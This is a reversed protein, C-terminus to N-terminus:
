RRHTGEESLELAAQDDDEEDRRHHAEDEAIAQVSVDDESGHEHVHADAVDLLSAGLARQFRQLPNRRVGGCGHTVTALPVNVGGANDDAVDEDQM